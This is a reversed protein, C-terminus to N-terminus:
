ALFNEDYENKFTVLKKIYFLEQKSLFTKKKSVELINSTKHHFVM